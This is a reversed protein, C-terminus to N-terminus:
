FSSIENSQPGATDAPESFARYRDGDTLYRPRQRPASFRPM